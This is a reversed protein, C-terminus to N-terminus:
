NAVVDPKDGIKTQPPIPKGENMAKKAAKNHSDQAKRQESGAIGYQGNAAATDSNQQHVLARQQEQGSTACGVTLIAAAFCFGAAIMTRKMPNEEKLDIYNVPRLARSSGSTVPPSGGIRHPLFPHRSM